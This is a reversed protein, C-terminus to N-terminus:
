KRCMILFNGDGTVVNWACGLYHMWVWYDQKGARLSFWITIPVCTDHISGYHRVSILEQQMPSFLPVDKTTVHFAIINFLVYMLRAKAQRM